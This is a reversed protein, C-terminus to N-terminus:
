TLDFLSPENQEKLDLDIKEQHISLNWCNEIHM